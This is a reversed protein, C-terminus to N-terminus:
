CSYPIGHAPDQFLCRLSRLVGFPFRRVMRRRINVSIRRGFRPHYVISAVTREVDELFDRGLGVSREEYFRAAENMEAEAAPLFEFDRM